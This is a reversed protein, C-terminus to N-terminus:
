SALYTPLHTLPHTSKPLVHRALLVQRCTKAEKCKGMETTTSIHSPLPFFSFGCLVGAWVRLGSPSFFFFVFFAHNISQNTEFYVCVEIKFM